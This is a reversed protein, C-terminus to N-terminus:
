AGCVARLTECLASVTDLAGEGRQTGIVHLLRPHLLHSPLTLKKRQTESTYEGYSQMTDAIINEKISSQPDHFACM